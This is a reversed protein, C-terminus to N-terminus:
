SKANGSCVAERPFRNWCREVRDTFFSRVDIGVEMKLLVSSM